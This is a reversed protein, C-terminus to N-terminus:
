TLTRMTTGTTPSAGLGSDSPMLSRVQIVRKGMFSQSNSKALFGMKRRGKAEGLPLPDSPILATQAREVEAEEVVTAEKGKGTPPPTWWVEMQPSTM